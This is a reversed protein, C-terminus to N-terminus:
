GQIFLNKLGTFILGVETVTFSALADRYRADRDAVRHAMAEGHPFKRGLADMPLILLGHKVSSGSVTACSAGTQDSHSVTASTASADTQVQAAKQIFNSPLQSTGTSETLPATIIPRSLAAPM